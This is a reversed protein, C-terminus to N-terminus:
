SGVTSAPARSPLNVRNCSLSAILCTPLLHALSQCLPWFVMIRVAGESSDSSLPSPSWPQSFLVPSFSKKPGGREAGWCFNSCFGGKSIKGDQPGLYARRLKHAKCGLYTYYKWTQIISDLKAGEECLVQAHVTKQEGLPAGSLSILLGLCLSTWDWIPSPWGSLWSATRCGFGLRRGGVDTWLARPGKADPAGGLTCSVQRCVQLFFHRAAGEPFPTLFSVVYCNKTQPTPQNTNQLLRQLRTPLIRTFWIGM